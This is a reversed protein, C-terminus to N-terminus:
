CNVREQVGRCSIPTTHACSERRVLTSAGIYTSTLAATSIEFYMNKARCNKVLKVLQKSAQSRRMQDLNM